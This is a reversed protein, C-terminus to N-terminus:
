GDSDVLDLAFLTFPIPLVSALALGTLLRSRDRFFAFFVANLVFFTHGEAAEDILVAVVQTLGAVPIMIWAPVSESAARALYVVVPLASVVLLAGPAEPSVDYVAVLVGVVASAGAFLMSWRREDELVDPRVLSFAM